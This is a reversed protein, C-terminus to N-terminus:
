KEGSASSREAARYSVPKGLRKAYTIENRTSEGIYQDITVVVVEDCMAIKERHLSDLHEKLAEDTVRIGSPHLVINGAMSLKSYEDMIAEPFRMSGCLCVIKPRSKTVEASPGSAGANSATFGESLIGVGPLYEKPHPIQASALLPLIHDLWADHKTPKAERYDEKLVEGCSCKVRGDLFPNDPDVRRHEALAQRLDAQSM